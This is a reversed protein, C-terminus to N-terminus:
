PECVFLKCWAALRSLIAIAVRECNEIGSIRGSFLHIAQSALTVAHTEFIGLLEDISLRAARRSRGIILANSCGSKSESKSRAIEPQFVTGRVNARPMSSVLINTM